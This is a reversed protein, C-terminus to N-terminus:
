LSQANRVGVAAIAAIARLRAADAITPPADATFLPSDLGVIGLVDDEHVLPVTFVSRLGSAKVRARDYWRDEAQVDPVFVTERQRFALGVIGRDCPVQADGYAAAGLGRFALTVLAESAEDHILIWSSRAAFIREAADLMASCTQRVDLGATLAVTAEILARESQSLPETAMTNLETM